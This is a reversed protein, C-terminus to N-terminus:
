PTSRVFPRVENATLIVRKYPFIHAVTWADPIARDGPLREWAKLTAHPVAIERRPGKHEFEDWYNPQAEYPDFTVLVEGPGCPGGNVERAVGWAHGEAFTYLRHGLRQAYNYRFVPAFKGYAEGADWTTKPDRYEDVLAQAAAPKVRAGLPVVLYRWLPTNERGATWYTNIDPHMGMKRDAVELVEQRTPDVLASWM